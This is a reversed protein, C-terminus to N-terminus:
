NGSHNILANIYKLYTRKSLFHIMISFSFICSVAINESGAKGPLLLSPEPLYNGVWPENILNYGLNSKVDKFNRAIEAWFQGWQVLTGAYDDYLYKLLLEFHIMEDKITIQDGKMEDFLFVSFSCNQTNLLHTGLTTPIYLLANEFVQFGESVIETLYNQEWFTIEEM